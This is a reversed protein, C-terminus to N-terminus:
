YDGLLPKLQRNACLVLLLGIVVLRLERACMSPRSQVLPPLKGAVLRRVVNEYAQESQKSAEVSRRYRGLQYGNAYHLTGM